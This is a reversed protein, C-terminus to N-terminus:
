SCMQVIATVISYMWCHTSAIRTCLNVLAIMDLKMQSCMIGFFFIYSCVLPSSGGYELHEKPM